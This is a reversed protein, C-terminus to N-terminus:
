WSGGFSPGKLSLSSCTFGGIVGFVIRRRESVLDNFRKCVSGDLGTAELGERCLRQRM